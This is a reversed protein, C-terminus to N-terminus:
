DKSLVPECFDECNFTIPSTLISEIWNDSTLAYVCSISDVGILVSFCILSGLDLWVAFFTTMTGYFGILLAM